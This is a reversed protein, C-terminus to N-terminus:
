GNSGPDFVSDDWYDFGGKTMEPNHRSADHYKVPTVKGCFDFISKASWGPIGGAKDQLMDMLRNMDEYAGETSGARLDARVIALQTLFPEYVAERGESMALDRHDAVLATIDDLWPTSEATTITPMLLMALAGVLVVM